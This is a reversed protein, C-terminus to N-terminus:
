KAKLAFPTLQGDIPLKALLGFVQYIAHRLLLVEKIHALCQFSETGNQSDQFVM